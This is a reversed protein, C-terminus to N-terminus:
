LFIQENLNSQHAFSQINWSLYWLAAVWSILFMFSSSNGFLFFFCCIFLHVGRGKHKSILHNHSLQSLIFYVGHLEDTYAMWNNPTWSSCVKWRKRSAGQSPQSLAIASESDQSLHQHAPLIFCSLCWCRLVWGFGLTAKCLGCAESEQYVSFLQILGWYEKWCQSATSSFCCAPHLLLM